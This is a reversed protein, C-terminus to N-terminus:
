LIKIANETIITTPYSRKVVAYRSKVDKLYQLSSRDFGYYRRCLNSIASFNSRPFLCVSDSENLIVKSASSNLIVHTISVTTINEHRGIQYCEDRFTAIARNLEKNTISETDDFVCCSSKFEKVDLPEELISIDIKVYEPKVADFAPDHLIPSFIYISNKPYLRKYQKLWNGTFTSKGVGSPGFIAIRSSECIPIVDIKGISKPIELYKRSLEELLEQALTYANNLTNGGGLLSVKNLRIARKLLLMNSANVNKLGTYFSKPLLEDLNASTIIAEEKEADDGDNIYVTTAKKKSDKYNITAIPSGKSLSLM